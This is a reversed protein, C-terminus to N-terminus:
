RAQRLLRLLLKGAELRAYHDPGADVLVGKIVLINRAELADEIVALVQDLVRSIRDRHSEFLEAIVLRTGRANAERSVRSRSARLQRAVAPSPHHGRLSRRGDPSIDLLPLPFQAEISPFHEYRM